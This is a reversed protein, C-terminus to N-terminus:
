VHVRRRRKCIEQIISLLIIMLISLRKRNLRFKSYDCNKDLDPIKRTKNIQCNYVQNHDISESNSRKM